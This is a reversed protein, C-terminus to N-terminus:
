GTGSGIDLLNGNHLGTVKKIMRKKKLLMANRALRYINNTLGKVSDSHSIYDDSEYYKGIETEEPYDQTFEFGCASCKYLIFAEKSNFHDICSFSSFINESACLPCENHHVM